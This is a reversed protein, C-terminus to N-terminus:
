PEEGLKPYFFPLNRNPIFRIHVEGFRVLKNLFLKAKFANHQCAEVIQWTFNHNNQFSGTFSSGTWSTFSLPLLNFGQVFSPCPIKIKPSLAGKDEGPYLYFTITSVSPYFIQIEKILVTETCFSKLFVDLLQM